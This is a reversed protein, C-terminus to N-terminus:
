NSCSKLVKNYLKYIEYANKETTFKEMAYAYGNQGMRRGEEPNDICYKIKGSLSVCDGTEYLLGNFKDIILEATATNNAGIVPNMNYMAEITVRGFGESSSCVLELNIDKRLENINKHFGMLVINEKLNNKEILDKIENIYSEDGDGVIFLKIGDYGNHILYNLAMVADKQRKYNSVFGVIMINFGKLNSIRGGKLNLDKSSVGDYILMIKDEGFYRFNEDYLTKSIVIIKESYKRIFARSKEKSFLYNVNFGKEAFERIHFIHPVKTFKSILLGFNIVSTNTHILDVKYNKIKGSIIKANIVNILNKLLSKGENFINTKKNMWIYYRVVIITVQRKKLEYYLDCKKSVVTVFVNNGMLLMEDILELLALTAGGLLEEHSIYLINM